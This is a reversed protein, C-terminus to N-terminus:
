RVRMFDQSYVYEVHGKEDVNIQKQVGGVEVYGREELTTAEAELTYRANDDTVGVGVATTTQM